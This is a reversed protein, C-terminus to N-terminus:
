GTHPKEFVMFHQAPLFDKTEVWRLGAAQLEAIAQQQTMKHLPKIPIRPDEGRYEILFVRGGPRLAGRIARMMELPYAFEHYADVLLVADITGDPLRPDDPMGMVPVINGISRRQIRKHLIDLMEQQVDVAYVQGTPVSEALRFSFYGTGAGIDAVKADPALEMAEVVKDPLEESARTRRELWAAGQHGMIRAIERGFYRKGIGDRSPEHYSYEGDQGPPQEASGLAPLLLCWIWALLLSHRISM